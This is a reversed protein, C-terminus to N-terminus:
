HSHHWPRERAMSVKGKRRRHWDGQLRSEESNSMGSYDDYSNTAGVHMGGSNTRLYLISPCSVLSGVAGAAGSVVVTEGKKIKGVDLIGWYATQGQPDHNIKMFTPLKRSFLTQEFVYRADWTCRLLRYRQSRQASNKESSTERSFCWIRGMRISRRSYRGVKSKQSCNWNSSCYCPWPCAYDRRDKGPTCLIAYRTVLRAYSNGFFFGHMLHIYSGDIYSYRQLKGPDLSLHRVKVLVQDPKLSSESPIEVKEYKFTEDDIFTKPRKALVIRSYSPM